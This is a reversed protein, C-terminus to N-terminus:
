ALVGRAAVEVAGELMTAGSLFVSGTPVGTRVAALATVRHGDVALSIERGSEVGLRRADEVSLEARPQAALFRLSPSHEVESGSWLTPAAALRLGRPAAPPAELPEDSLPEDPLASTADREQWRV